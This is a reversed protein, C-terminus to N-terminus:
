SKFVASAARMGCCCLCGGVVFRGVCWLDFGRDGKLGSLIPLVQSSVASLCISSLMMWVEAGFTSHSWTRAAM